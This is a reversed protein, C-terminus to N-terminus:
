GLEIAESGSFYPRGFFILLLLGTALAKDWFAILGLYLMALVLSQIIKETRPEM